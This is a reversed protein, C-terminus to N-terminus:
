QQQQVAAAAHEGAGVGQPLLVEYFVAPRPRAATGLAGELVAAAHLLSAEHWAPAILQLGVPMPCAQGQKRPDGTPSAVTGVPVSMAPLGLMNAGVLFRMLATTTCIDSLGGKLAAPPIVPAVNPVTPTIIFNCGSEFVRRFHTVMRTRIKQAQIYHAATFSTAISLSAQTELNFQARTLPNALAGAMNNHMETTITCTHAVRLADLEPITVGRVELGQRELAQVAAKCLEVVAPEADEFWQWYIGAVKGALPQARGPPPLTRPLRLPAPNDDLTNGVNAMLAYMLLCDQVSGAIPGIAAVTQDISPGHLHSIRGATPMLGVCGCLSSPIRISGGGDTGVAIPCIGAAVLAASGSSSGGTHRWVDHPNRPTGHVVNLGTTGLGIEHLNTKGLLIAGADLLSQVAPNTGTAPRWAAMFATGGTTPYPLADVCDKVAFPVGDLPSLPQGAAYRETSATAQQRIHDADFAIFFRMPPDRQESHEVAAIVNEAVQCPTAQGALYARHFDFITPQAADAQRWPAASSPEPAVVRAAAAAREAPAQGEPLTLLAFSGRETETPWGCTRPRYTPREPIFLDGLIQPYNNQSFLKSRVPGSAWSGLFSIFLRLSLGSLVPAAM